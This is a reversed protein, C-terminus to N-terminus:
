KLQKELKSEQFLEKFSKTSSLLEKPMTERIVIVTIMICIFAVIAWILISTFYARKMEGVDDSSPVATIM